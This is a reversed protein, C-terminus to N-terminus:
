AIQNPVPLLQIVIEKDQNDGFRAAKEALFVHFLFAFHAVSYRNSTWLCVVVGANM